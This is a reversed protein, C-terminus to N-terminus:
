LQYAVELDGWRRGNVIVPVYVNRVTIYNTGDGEQRYVAMFFDAKSRKAEKDCDDFLIRGNRCFSTDHVLDGTPARSRDTCHTPLFGNMDAASCMRIRPDALRLRDFL